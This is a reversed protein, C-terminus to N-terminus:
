IDALEIDLIARMVGPATSEFGRSEEGEEEDEEESATDDPDECAAGLTRTLDHIDQIHGLDTTANRRGEKAGRRLRSKPLVTAVIDVPAPDGITVDDGDIDYTAEFYRGRGVPDAWLEVYVIVRAPDTFTGEIYTTYLQDGYTDIAWGAAAQGLAEQLRELTGPITAYAKSREPSPDPVVEIGLAEAITEAKTGITEAIRALTEGITEGHRAAKAGILQTLPNAGKLTPGVEILDLELLDLFGDDARAEDFVDYAFSFERVARSKLLKLAKRGEPEETDIQGKVMLGGLDRIAEPLQTDGPQLAEVDGPEITGLYASLDDWQHSFIVPIPDGSAAWRELSADFADAAIRHGHFDVNGFVSVIAEFTGAEVDVAKVGAIPFSATERRRARTKVRM